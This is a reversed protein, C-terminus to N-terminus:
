LGPLAPQLRQLLPSWPVPGRTMRMLLARRARPTPGVVSRLFRDAGIEDECFRTYHDIRDAPVRYGRAVVNKLVYNLTVFAQKVSRSIESYYREEFVKGTRGFLRNVYKAFRGFVYRTADALAEKSEPRAYWHIHDDQIVWAFTHVGRKRAEEVLERFCDLVEQRRLRPVGTRVRKTIHM